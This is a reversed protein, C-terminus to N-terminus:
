RQAKLWVENMNCYHRWADRRVFYGIAVCILGVGGLLSIGPKTLLVLSELSAFNSYERGPNWECFGAYAVAALSWWFGRNARMYRAHAEDMALQLAKARDEVM